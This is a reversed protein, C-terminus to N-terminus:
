IVYGMEKTHRFIIYFLQKLIPIKGIGNVSVIGIILIFDHRVYKINQRISFIFGVFIVFDLFDNDFEAVFIMINKSQGFFSEIKEPVLKPYLNVM